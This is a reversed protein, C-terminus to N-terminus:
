DDLSDGKFAINNIGLLARNTTSDMLKQAVDFSDLGIISDEDLIVGHNSLAKKVARVWRKDEFLYMEERRAKLEEFCKMLAPIILVSHLITTSNPNLSALKFEYFTSSPLQINIKNGSNDIVIEKRSEDKIETVAFISPVSSLNDSEKEIRVQIEKGFAIFNGKELDFSIGDYISNFKDNTYQEIDQVAIIFPCLNVVGEIKDANLEIEKSEEKFLVMKRFSTLPCEIHLCYQAFGDQILNKIGDNELLANVAIAIKNPNKTISVDMDFNSEIYDDNFDTLVPYPYLKAKIHM